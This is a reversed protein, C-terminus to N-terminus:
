FPAAVASLAVTEIDSELMGNVLVVKHASSRGDVSIVLNAWCVPLRTPKAAIIYRDGVQRLQVRGHECELWLAVNSSCPTRGFAGIEM